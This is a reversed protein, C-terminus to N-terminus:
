LLQIVTNWAVQHEMPLEWLNQFYTEKIIFNAFGIRINKLKKKNEKGYIHM